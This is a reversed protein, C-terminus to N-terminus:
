GLAARVARILEAIDVRGNGNGDFDRCNSLDNRGLAIGIGFILESITIRSDGDCDGPELDEVVITTRAPQLPELYGNDLLLRLEYSGPDTPATLTITGSTASSIYSWDMFTRNDASPTYLAIWDRNSHAGSASWSVEFDEGVAISTSEPIVTYAIGRNPTPTRTSPRRTPTPPPRVGFICFALCTGVSGVAAGLGCALSAGSICPICAVGASVACAVGCVAAGAILCLAGFVTIATGIEAFCDVVCGSIAGSGQGAFFSALSFDASPMVISAGDAETITVSDRLEGHTIEGAELMAALVAHRNADTNAAAVVREIMWEFGTMEFEITRRIEVGALRALLGESGVTAEPFRDISEIWVRGGSHGIVLEYEAVVDDELRYESAQRFFIPSALPHATASSTAVSMARGDSARGLHRRVASAAPTLGMSLARGDFRAGSHRALPVPSVALASQVLHAPALLSLLAAAYLVCGVWRRLPALVRVFM